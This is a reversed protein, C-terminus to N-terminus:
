RFASLGEKGAIGLKKYVSLAHTKVTSPSIGLSEAIERYARGESLLRAIDAERGTLGPFAPVPVSSRFPQLAPGFVSALAEFPIWRRSCFSAALFGANTALAFYPCAQWADSVVGFPILLVDMVLIAPYFLVLLGGTLFAYVLDLSGKMLRRPIRLAQAVGVFLAYMAPFFCATRFWFDRSAESPFPMLLFFPVVALPLVSFSALGRRTLRSPYLGRVLLPLAIFGYIRGLLNVAYIPDTRSVLSFASPRFVGALFSTVCIVNVYVLYGILSIFRPDRKRVYESALIATVALAIATTVLLLIANVSYYLGM